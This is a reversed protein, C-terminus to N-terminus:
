ILKKSLDRPAVMNEPKLIETLQEDSLLGDEKVLDVVRRGTKLAIKAIRSSNEYGIYPNLATILGVSNDVYAQCVDANATIGKVCRDTLMFMGNTLQQISELIKYM